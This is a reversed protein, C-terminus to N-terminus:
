GGVCVAEQVLQKGESFLEEASFRTPVEFPAWRRLKLLWTSFTHLPM